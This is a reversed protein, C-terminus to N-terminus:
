TRKIGYFIVTSASFSDNKSMSTFNHFIVTLKTM